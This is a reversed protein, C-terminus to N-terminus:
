KEIETLDAKSKWYVGRVQFIEDPGATSTLWIRKSAAEGYHETDNPFTVLLMGENLKPGDPTLLRPELIMELQLAPDKREIWIGAEAAPTFVLREPRFQDPKLHPLYLALSGDDLYAVAGVAAKTEYAAFPEMLPYTYTVKAPIIATASCGALLAASVLLLMPRM